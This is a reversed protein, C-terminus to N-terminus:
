PKNHARKNEKMLQKVKNGPTVKSELRDNRLLKPVSSAQYTKIMFVVKETPSVIPLFNPPALVKLIDLPENFAKTAHRYMKKAVNKKTANSTAGLQNNLESQNLSM